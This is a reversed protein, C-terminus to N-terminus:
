AADSPLGAPWGSAWQVALDLYRCYRVTLLTRHQATGLLKNDFVCVACFRSNAAAHIVELLFQPQTNLGM